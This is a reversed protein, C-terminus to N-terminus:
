AWFSVEVYSAGLHVASLYSQLISDTDISPWQPISECRSAIKGLRYDQLLYYIRGWAQSRDTFICPYFHILNGRHGVVKSPGNESWLAETNILPTNPLVLPTSIIFSFIVSGIYELGMTSLIPVTFDRCLSERKTAHSRKYSDLLAMGRGVLERGETNASRNRFVEFLLKANMPEITTFTWPKNTADELLPLPITYTPNTTGVMSVGLSFLSKPHIISPNEILHPSLCVAPTPNPSDLSGLNVVVSSGTTSVTRRPQGRALLNRKSSTKLRHQLEAAQKHSLETAAKSLVKALPIHGRYSAHDIATWGAHDRHEINAGHGLLDQAITTFGALSAIVLPTWNKTSEPRDVAPDYRLLLSILTENGSQAALYLPTQGLADSCNVDLDFNLLFAVTETFNSRIALLLLEPRLIDLDSCPNCGEFHILTKTVELYGGLVSVQIPSRSQMDKLLIASITDGADFEEWAKMSKLIIGCVEASDCECAYHLHIRGLHDQKYLIDLKRALLHDLMYTLLSLCTGYSSPKAQQAISTSWCLEAIIYRLCSEIVVVADQSIARSILVDVWSHYSCRTSCQFLVQLFERRSFVLDGKCTDDILKGLELSDNNEVVRFFPLAPISPNVKALQICFSDQAKLPEKQLNQQAQTILAIVKHLNGLVGLCQAQTAFELRCLTNEVQVAIHVGNTGLSRIKCIIKRFGDSNVRGYWRLKDFEAVLEMFSAKQHQLEVNNLGYSDFYGTYGANVDYSLGSKSRLKLLLTIFNDGYFQHVTDIASLCRAALEIFALPDSDHIEHLARPFLCSFFRRIQGKGQLNTSATSEKCLRKLAAYNMYADAWEAIQHKYYNRGFKM